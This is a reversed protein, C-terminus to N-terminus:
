HNYSKDGTPITPIESQSSNSSNTEISQSHEMPNNLIALWRQLLFSINSVTWSMADAQPNEMEGDIKDEPDSKTETQESKSSDIIDLNQILATLAIMELIEILINGINLQLM